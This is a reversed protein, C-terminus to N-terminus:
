QAGPLAPIAETASHKGLLIVDATGFTLGCVDVQMENFRKCDPFSDELAQVYDLCLQM